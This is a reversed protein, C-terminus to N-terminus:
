WRTLCFKDNAIMGNFLVEQVVFGIPKLDFGAAQRRGLRECAQEQHQGDSREMEGTHADADHLTFESVPHVNM